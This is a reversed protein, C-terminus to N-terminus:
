YCRFSFILLHDKDNTKLMHFLLDFYIKIVSAVHYFEVKHEDMTNKLDGVEVFPKLEQIEEMEVLWDLTEKIKERYSYWPNLHKKAYELNSKAQEYLRDWRDNLNCISTRLDM